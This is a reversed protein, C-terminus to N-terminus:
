IISIGYRNKIESVEKKLTEIEQEQEVYRMALSVIFEDSNSKAHIFRGNRHLEGCNFTVGDSRTFEVRCPGQVIDFDNVIAKGGRTNFSKKLVTGHTMTAILVIVGDCGVDFEVPGNIVSGNLTIIGRNGLSEILNVKM